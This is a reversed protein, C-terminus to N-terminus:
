LEPWTQALCAGAVQSARRRMCEAKGSATEKGTEDAIPDVHVGPAHTSVNDVIGKKM